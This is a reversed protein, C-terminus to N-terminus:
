QGVISEMERCLEAPYNNRECDGNDLSALETLEDWWYADERVPLDRDCDTTVNCGRAGHGAGFYHALEHVLYRQGPDVIRSEIWIIAWEPEDEAGRIFAWRVNIEGGPGPGHDGLGFYGVISESNVRFGLQAADDRSGYIIVLPMDSYGDGQVRTSLYEHLEDITELSVSPIRNHVEIGGPTTEVVHGLYSWQYRSITELECSEVSALWGAVWGKPTRYWIQNEPRLTAEGLLPEQTGLSLQGLIQSEIRGSPRGTWPVSRVNLNTADPTVCMLSDDQGLASPPRIFLSITLLIVLYSLHRVM